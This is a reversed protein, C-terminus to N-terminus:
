WTGKPSEVGGSVARLEESRLTRPAVTLAAPQKKAKIAARAKTAVSLLRRAFQM